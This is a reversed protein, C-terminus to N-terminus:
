RGPSHFGTLTCLRSCSVRAKCVNQLRYCNPKPCGEIWVMGLNLVPLWLGPFLDAIEKNEPHFTLGFLPGTLRVLHDDDKKRFGGSKHYDNKRLLRIRLFQVFHRMKLKLVVIDAFQM